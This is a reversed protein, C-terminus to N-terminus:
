EPDSGQCLRAALALLAPDDPAVATEVRAWGHGCATAAAASIAAITVASRDHVLAALRNGARPSHVAIVAGDLAPLEAVAIEVSAYVAVVTLARGAEAVDQGALHLLRRQGREGDLLEAVGRDGVREIALGAARAAAATAEGVALVPLGHYIALDAGAHRVANASTLVIADFLDAAPAQWALPVIEFLPFEIVTLGAERARAASIGLGPEPRLLVLPKM